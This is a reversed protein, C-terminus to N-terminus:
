KHGICARRHKNKIKKNEVHHHPMELLLTQGQAAATAKPPFAFQTRANELGVTLEEFELGSQHTVRALGIEDKKGAVLVLRAGHHMEM